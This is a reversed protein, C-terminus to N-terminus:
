DDPDPIPERPWGCTTWAGIPLERERLCKVTNPGIEFKKIQETGCCTFSFEVSQPSAWKADDHVGAVTSGSSMGSVLYDPEAGTLHDKLRETSVIYYPGYHDQLLLVYRGDPSFVDFEWDSFYLEGKPRFVYTKDDGAFTFWLRTVGYELPVGDEQKEGGFHATVTGSTVKHLEPPLKTEAAALGALFLLGLM